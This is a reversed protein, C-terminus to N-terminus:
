TLDKVARSRRLVVAQTRVWLLRDVLGIDDVVTAVNVAADLVFHNMLLLLLRLLLLHIVETVVIVVVAMLKVMILFVNPGKQTKDITTWVRHQILVRSSGENVVVREESLRKLRVSTLM